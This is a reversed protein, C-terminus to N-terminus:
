GALALGRTLLAGVQDWELLFADHGHASAIEAYEARRGLAQLREALLSMHRPPYLMDSDIGVALTAAAIRALGWSARPDAPAVRPDRPAGAGDGPPPPASAPWSEGVAPPRPARALDHHDMADLQSLYARADYRAVLKRGQHELYTQLAYPTRSSWAAPGHAAAPRAEDPAPRRGQRESLGPEARYTMHGIQRALELGRGVRDPWGPDMLIAQRGIHNWGLLWPTALESAGFPLLAAFRAPDLAALCLLIMGGLSGGTVLAVRGVGLRDLALLISRAQDWSTVTAPLRAEDLAFAGRGTVRPAPFRADDARTPFGPDLPGSSGYCSGLNNFCLVRLRTTDLARGPGVVPAWWGGEGGARADGTLAHVALVTPVGAALAPAEHQVAALRERAASLEAREAVSRRVVRGASRAVAAATLPLSRAALAPLEAPPGAWWGRVVHDRVVAGGELALAPLPLDFLRESM